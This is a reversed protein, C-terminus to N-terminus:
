ALTGLISSALTLNPDLMQSGRVFLALRDHMGSWVITHKEKNKPLNAAFNYHPFIAVQFETSKPSRMSVQCRRTSLKERLSM